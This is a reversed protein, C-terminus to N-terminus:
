RAKKPKQISSAGADRELAPASRALRKALLRCSDPLELASAMARADAWELVSATAPVLEPHEPPLAARPTCPAADVPGEPSRVSAPAALAAIL